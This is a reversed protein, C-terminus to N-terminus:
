AKRAVIHCERVNGQFMGAHIIKFGARQYVEVWEGCELNVLHSAETHPWDPTVAGVYGGRKLVRHIESLAPPLDHVHEMTHRSVVADVAGDPFMSLHEIAGMHLMYGKEKGSQVAPEYFDVGEVADFFSLLFPFADGAAAGLELARGGRPIFSVLNQYSQLDRAEFLGGLGSSERQNRAETMQLHHEANLALAQALRDPPPPSQFPRPSEELLPQLAAFLHGKVAGVQYARARRRQREVMRQRLAGDRVLLDICEAIVPFDKSTVLLGGDGVTEAVAASSFALVPVGLHMSEVLPVGFGEHESMSIFVSAVRYYANLEAQSVHGCLHVDHLGLAEIRRELLETYLPVDCAGVLLLRSKVNLRRYHYYSDIVDEQRKNPVVRGVYLMNTWGDGYSKLVHPDPAIDWRDDLVVPNVLAVRRYGVRRLDRAGFESDAIALVALDALRELDGGTRSLQAFLQPHLDRFYEAPTFSHYHVVLRGGARAHAAAVNTAAGSAGFHYILIDGTGLGLQSASSRVEWWIRPDIVAAFVESAYGAATLWGRFALALQFQADGPM